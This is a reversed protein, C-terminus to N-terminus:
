THVWVKHYLTQSGHASGGYRNHWYWHADGITNPFGNNPYSVKICGASYYDNATDWCLDPNGSPCQQGQSSTEQTHIFLSDRTTGNSCNKNQLYWVRGQIASGTYNDWHGWTDYWGLPLWGVGKDCENTNSGSGSRWSPGSYVTEPHGDLSWKFVLTSNTNSSRKFDFWGINAAHAAPVVGVLAIATSVILTLFRGRM